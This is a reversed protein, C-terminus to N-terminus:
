VGLERRRLRTPATRQRATQQPLGAAISPRFDQPGVAKRENDYKGQGICLRAIPMPKRSPGGQPRCNADHAQESVGLESTNRVDTVDVSAMRGSQGLDRELAMKSQCRRTGMHGPTIRSRAVEPATNRVRPAIVYAMEIGPSNRLGWVSNSTAQSRRIRVRVKASATFCASRCLRSTTNCAQPTQWQVRASSLILCHPPNQSSGHAIM